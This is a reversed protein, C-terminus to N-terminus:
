AFLACITLYLLSGYCSRLQARTSSRFFDFESVSEILGDYLYVSLRTYKMSIDAQYVYKLDLAFILLLKPTVRPM